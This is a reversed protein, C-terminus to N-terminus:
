ASRTRTDRLTVPIILDLGVFGDGNWELLTVTGGTVSSGRLDRVVSVASELRQHASLATVLEDLFANAIEAGTSAQMSSSAAFFQVHMDFNQEVQGNPYFKTGTMDHTVIATPIDGSVLSQNMAPVYPWVRKVDMPVPETIELDKIIDALATHVARINM